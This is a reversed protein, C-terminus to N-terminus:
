EQVSHKNGSSGRGGATFYFLGLEKWKRGRLLPTLVPLINRLNSKLGLPHVRAGLVSCINSCVRELPLMM